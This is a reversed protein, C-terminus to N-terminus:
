TFYYSKKSALETEYQHVKKITNFFNNFSISPLDNSYFDYLEVAKVVKELWGREWRERKGTSFRPVLNNKLKDM